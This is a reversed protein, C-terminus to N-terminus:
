CIYTMQDYVPNPQSSNETNWQRGLEAQVSPCNPLLPQAAPCSPPDDFDFEVLRLHVVLHNVTYLNIELNREESGFIQFRLENYKSSHGARTHVHAPPPSRMTFSSMGSPSASEEFSSLQPM